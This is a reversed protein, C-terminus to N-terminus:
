AADPVPVARPVRSNRGRFQGLNVTRTAEERNITEVRTTLKYQGMKKPLLWISLDSTGREPFLGPVRYGFKFSALASQNEPFSIQRRQLEFITEQAIADKGKLTADSEPM